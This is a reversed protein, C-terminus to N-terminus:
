PYDLTSLADSGLPFRDGGSQVAGERARSQEFGESSASREFATPKSM